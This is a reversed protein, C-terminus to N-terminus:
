WEPGPAPALKKKPTRSRAKAPKRKKVKKKAKKKAKKKPMAAEKFRCGIDIQSESMTIEVATMSEGFMEFMTDFTEISLEEAFDDGGVLDRSTNWWDDFEQKDPNCGEAYACWSTEPDEESKELHPIGPSMLYVGQDHVLLLYPEYREEGWVKRWHKSAKSHEWVRRVDDPSFRLTGM